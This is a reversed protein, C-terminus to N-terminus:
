KVEERKKNGTKISEKSSEHQIHFCSSSTQTKMVLCALSEVLSNLCITFDPNNAVNYKACAEVECGENFGGVRISNHAPKCNEKLVLPQDSVQLVIGLNM